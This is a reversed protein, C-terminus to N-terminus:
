PEAQGSFYGWPGPPLSRHPLNKEKEPPKSPKQRLGAQWLLDEITTFKYFREILIFTTVRLSQISVERFSVTCFRM